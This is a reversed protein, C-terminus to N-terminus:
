GRRRTHLPTESVFSLPARRSSAGRAVSCAGSFRGLQVLASRRGDGTASVDDSVNESVLRAAGSQFPAVVRGGQSLM